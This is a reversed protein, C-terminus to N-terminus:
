AVDMALNIIETLATRYSDREQEAKEARSLALEHDEIYARAATELRKNETLLADREQEAKVMIWYARQVADPANEEIWKKLPAYDRNKMAEMAARAEDRERLAVALQARLGHTDEGPM